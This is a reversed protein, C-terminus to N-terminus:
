VVVCFSLLLLFIVYSTRFDGEAGLAMVVAGPHVVEAGPHAVGGVFAELDAVVEVVVEAEAAVGM